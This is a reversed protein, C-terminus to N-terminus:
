AISLIARVDADARLVIPAGDQLAQWALCEEVREADLLAAKCKEIKQVRQEDSLAGADDALRDAEAHLRRIIEDRGLWLILGLMDPQWAGNVEVGSFFPGSGERGRDFFHGIAPAAAKEDLWASIMSKVEARTHPAAQIERIDAGIQLVRERAAALTIKKEIAPLPMFRLPAGGRASAAIRERCRENRKELPAARASLAASRGRLETAHEVCEALDAAIHSKRESPAAGIDRHRDAIEQELRLSGEREALKFVRENVMALEALLEDLQRNEFILRAASYDGGERRLTEVIQRPLMRPSPAARLRSAHDDQRGQALALEVKSLAAM